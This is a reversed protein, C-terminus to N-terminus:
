RWNAPKWAKILAARRIEESYLDFGLAATNGEFPELYTVPFVDQAETAPHIIFDKFGEQRVGNIYQAKQSATIRPIWELAQVGHSEKLFGGVFLGFEERTVHESANFLGQIGNLETVGHDLNTIISDMAVEVATELNRQSASQSSSRIFLAAIVTVAVLALFVLAILAAM